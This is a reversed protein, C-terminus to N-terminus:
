AHLCPSSSNDHNPNLIVFIWGSTIAAWFCWLSPLGHNESLVLFTVILMNVFGWVFIKRNSSILASGCTCIFYSMAIVPPIGDVHFDIFNAALSASGKGSSIALLYTGTVVLGLIGFLLYLKRRDSKSEFLGIALPIYSPWLAFAIFLYLNKALVSISNSNDALLYHWVIASAFLHISFIGPILALPWTRKDQVSM